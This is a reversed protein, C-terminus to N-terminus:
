NKAGSEAGQNRLIPLLKRAVIREAHMSPHHGDFLLSSGGQLLDCQGMSCFINEPFIFEIRETFQAAFTDAKVGNYAFYRNGGRALWKPADVYGLLAPTPGVVIIRKGARHLQEATQAVDQIRRMDSGSKYRAALVVTNIDVSNVLFDFVQQNHELCDPRNARRELKLAPPCSSYSIQMVSIGGDAMAQALEVGHSDSWVAVNAKGEGLVCSGSPNPLGGGVHCRKRSPSIDYRANDHAVLQAPFRAPWGDLMHFVFSVGLVVLAAAASSWLLRPVSFFARNRTPKEIFHWSLWAFIMSTAIVVVQGFFGDLWGLDRFFVILPWHWLYLSYSILGIFM